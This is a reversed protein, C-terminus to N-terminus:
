GNASRRPKANPLSALTAADLPKPEYREVTRGVFPAMKDSVGGMGYPMPKAALLEWSPHYGREIQPLPPRRDEILPMEARRTLRLHEAEDERIKDVVAWFQPLTPAFAMNHGDVKNKIFKGCVQEIFGLPLSAFEECYIAVLDKPDTPRDRFAMLLKTFATVLEPADPRSHWSTSNDDM